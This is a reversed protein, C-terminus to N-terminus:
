RVRSVAPVGIALRDDAVNETVVAGAGVVCRSGIHVGPLVRSGLGVLTDAGVAARGGLVSGPALHVNVGVRCEHEVIAGTNVIAHEGIRARTHVIAGPAVFVGPEISASASVVATPHVVSVPPPPDLAALRALLGRRADLDGIAIIWAFAPDRLLDLRDFGGLRDARPAGASLPAFPDDDLFGAIPAGAAIAAEAVVLAHGGGGIIVLGRPM